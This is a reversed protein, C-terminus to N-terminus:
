QQWAKHVGSQMSLWALVGQQFAAAALWTLLHLIGVRQFM